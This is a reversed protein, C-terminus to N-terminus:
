AAARSNKPRDSLYNGMLYFGTASLAICILPFALIWWASALYMRGDAVMGGWSPTPPPVGAGLLSPISELIILFGMQSISLAPLAGVIKPLLYRTIIRFDSTEGMSRYLGPANFRMVEGRIPKIYRPWTVLGIVIILAILGLGGISALWIFLLWLIAFCCCVLWVVPSILRPLSVDFIRDRSGRWYGSIFGLATGLVGGIALAGLAVILSTRSGYVLRSWVDRGFQDTGLPHSLTGREQWSPPTRRARLDGVVPDHSTILPALIAALLFFAVIVLGAVGRIASLM